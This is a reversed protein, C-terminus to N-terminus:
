GWWGDDCRDMVPLRAPVYPAAHQTPLPQAFPKAQANCSLRCVLASSGWTLQGAERHADPDGTTGLCVGGCQWMPPRSQSTNARAQCQQWM